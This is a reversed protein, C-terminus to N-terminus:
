DGRSAADTRLFRLRTQGIEILDGDALEAARTRKGNVRTGNTSQLDEISYSGTEPDYLVIAHERSTSEDPSLSRGIMGTLWEVDRFVTAYSREVM